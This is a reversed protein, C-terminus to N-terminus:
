GRDGGKYGGRDGARNLSQGLGTGGRDEQQGWGTGVVTRGGLPGVAIGDRIQPQLRSGFGKVPAAATHEACGWSVLQKSWVCVSQCGSVTPTPLTPSTSASSLSTGSTYTPGSRLPALESSHSPQHWLDSGATAGAVAMIPLCQQAVAQGQRSPNSHATSSGSAQPGPSVAAAAAEESAPPQQQHRQWLM